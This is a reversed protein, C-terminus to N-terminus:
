LGGYGGGYGAYSFAPKHYDSVKVVQNNNAGPGGAPMIYLESGNKSALLYNDSYWGYPNYDSLEAIQKPKQANGDGIFLSNKGDRPESWFVQSGHPSQLYTPYSQQFKQDTLSSDPKLQGDEYDYYTVPTSGDSNAPTQVYLSQPEYLSLAVYYSTMNNPIPFDKIVKKSNGDPTASILSVQKGNLTSGLGGYGTFWNKPYVVENNLLYVTGFSTYVADYQNTGQGDTEDITTLKSTEANFTKLAQAKPQWAQVGSRIVSYVFNHGSWGVLSFTANGEDMTTLQDNNTSILYLKPTNGGARKSLLALYQWDKSALLVTGTDEENGTGGLVTQRDSGDLNTKVVDISGSLKSLFYVKGTPVLSFINQNATPNNIAITVTQTTYGPASIVAKITPQTAPLVLNVKGSSTSTGKIGAVSVTASPIAATGIKDQVTITVQRGIATLKIDHPQFHNGFQVTYSTTIDQYYKKSVRITKPGPSVKYGVLGFADSSETKGDITVTADSVPQGTTADVLRFSVLSKTFLGGIKYRTFPVAALIALIVVITAPITLKKKAKYGAWLQSFKGAPKAAAAETPQADTAEAGSSRNEHQEETTQTAQVEPTELIDTDPGQAQSQQDEPYNTNDTM